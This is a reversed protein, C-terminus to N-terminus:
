EIDVFSECFCIRRAANVLCRVVFQRSRKWASKRRPQAPTQPLEDPSVELSGVLPEITKSEGYLPSEVTMEPCSRFPGRRLSPLGAAVSIRRGDVALDLADITCLACSSQEGTSSAIASVAMKNCHVPSDLDIEPSSRFLKEFGDHRSAPLPATIRRDVALDLVNIVSRLETRSRNWTSIRRPQAPTQPLEDPSVELSGVLPEITKSEGYLPSEVTMEPCSRFPGRRLSPLGAAVSIRRGDVALDLADITCLACSNQEGTSSAIASVAMKNCHVPSDLDIEPSSRFRKGLGDHLTAPLPAQIRRDVALDLVDIVSRLGTFYEDSRRSTVEM